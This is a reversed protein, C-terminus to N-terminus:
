ELPWTHIHSNSCFSPQTCFFQHKWVTTSSFVRSLGKSQLSTLCTLGLPFWSHINIPLVSASASPGFSQGGSAFLWSMPFSRWALFCQPYSSFPIVSSSVAPHYWWSLPCSDSCVRPSLSPHPLRAHQLGCPWLSSSVVWHSVLLLLVVWATWEEVLFEKLASLTEHIM